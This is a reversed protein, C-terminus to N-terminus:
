SHSRLPTNLRNRSALAATSQAARPRLLAPLVRHGPLRPATLLHLTSGSLFLVRPAATTRLCKMSCPFHRRPSLPAHVHLPVPAPAAELTTRRPHHGSAPLAQAHAKSHHADPTQSLPHIRRATSASTARPAHACPPRSNTFM